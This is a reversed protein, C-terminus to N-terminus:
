LKNVIVLGDREFGVEEGVAGGAGQGAGQAPDCNVSCVLWGHM